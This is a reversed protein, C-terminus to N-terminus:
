LAFGYVPLIAHKSLIDWPNNSLNYDRPSYVKVAIGDMWHPPPAAVDSLSGVM